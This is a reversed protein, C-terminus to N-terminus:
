LFNGYMGIVQMHLQKLDSGDLVYDALQEIRKIATQSSIQSKIISVVQSKSIKDRHMVRSIQLQQNCIVLIIRDINLHKLISFLNHLLPIEIICCTSDKLKLDLIKQSIKKLVKKHLLKELFLRKKKSKFIKTRIKKLDLTNFYCNIQEKIYQNNIILEKAIQDAYIVPINLQEFTLSAYTKGSGIGGTIAILM